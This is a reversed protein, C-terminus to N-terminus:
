ELYSSIKEELIVILETQYYKYIDKIDLAIIEKKFRGNIFNKVEKKHSSEM